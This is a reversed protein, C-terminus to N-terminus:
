AGPGPGVQVVVVSVNDRAAEALAEAVLARAPDGTGSALVAQIRPLAVAKFLGDSCLLFRDRPMLSGRVKDLVLADEDGGVARTIVNAHPHSEAAEASVVGADVLGQVLSHDRTVQELQGDRLLYARSDGAWLCVFHGERILLLVLTSMILVRPGRAAAERRLTLHVDTMQRRLELLADQPSLGDPLCALTDVITTSAVEGSQHGGAGDAM